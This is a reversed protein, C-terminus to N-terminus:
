RRGGPTEALAFGDLGVLEAPPGAAALRRAALDDDPGAPPLLGRVAAVAERYVSREGALAEVLLDLGVRYGRLLRWGTDDLAALELVAPLFDPLEGGVLEVGAARYAAAFEVLAMGRRRTDGDTYYTLYLCCRRRFDFLRVYEAALEGPDTGARHEAVARLGAGVGGPLDAIAARVVPLASLVEADPYRLLMAGARLAVPRNM